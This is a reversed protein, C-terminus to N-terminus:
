KDNKSETLNKVMNKIKKAFRKYAPMADYRKQEEIQLRKQEEEYKQQNVQMIHLSMLDVQEAYTANQPNNFSDPKINRYVNLLSECVSGQKIICDSEVVQNM